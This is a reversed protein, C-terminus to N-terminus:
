TGNVGPFHDLNGSNKGEYGNDSNAAALGYFVALSPFSIDRDIIGDPKTNSLHIDVDSSLDRVPPYTM